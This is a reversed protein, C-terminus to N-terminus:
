YRLELCEFTFLWSDHNTELRVRNADDYVKAVRYEGGVWGDMASSWGVEPVANCASRVAELDNKVRVVVGVKIDEETLVRMRKRPRTRPTDEKKLAERYAGALIM